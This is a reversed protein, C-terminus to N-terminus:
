PKQESLANLAALDYRPGEYETGYFADTVRILGLIQSNFNDLEEAPVWLERHISSGVTHEEFQMLYDARVDFETVFGARMARGSFDKTNWQEAIQRAYERNLVPYFVPQEPLRPPFRRMGSARILELEELGVPRFLTRHEILQRSRLRENLIALVAVTRPVEVV